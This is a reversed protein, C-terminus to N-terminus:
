DWKTIKDRDHKRLALETSISSIVHGLGYTPQVLVIQNIFQKNQHKTLSYVVIIYIMKRKM